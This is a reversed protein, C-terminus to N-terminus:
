RVPHRAGPRAGHARWGSASAPDAAPVLDHDGARRRHARDARQGGRPARRSALHPFSPAHPISVGDAVTSGSALGRRGGQTASRMEGIWQITQSNGQPSRIRREQRRRWWPGFRIAMGQMSDVRSEYQFCCWGIVSDDKPASPTGAGRTATSFACPLVSGKGIWCSVRGSARAPRPEDCEAVILQNQINYRTCLNPSQMTLTCQNSDTVFAPRSDRVPPVHLKRCHM